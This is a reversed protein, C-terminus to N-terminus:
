GMSNKGPSIFSSIPQIRLWDKCIYSDNLKKIFELHVPVQGTNAVTFTKKVSEMFKIHGFHIENRNSHPALSSGPIDVTVQPLFENELRDLQKLCEEYSKRYRIQNIVKVKSSFYSSVPKHDSLKYQAQSTYDVQTVENGKYLIRDCWAPSRNKESSDWNDTGTDYKYTPRFSLNGETFGQFVNGLKMQDRLQDHELILSYKEKEILGKAKDAEMASPNIRYNMDGFVFV